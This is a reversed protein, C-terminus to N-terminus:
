SSSAPRMWRCPVSIRNSCLLETTDVAQIELYTFGPRKASFPVTALFDGFRELMADEPFEKLWISLYAQNSM